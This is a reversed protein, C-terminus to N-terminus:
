RRVSSSTLTPQCRTRLSPRDIDVQKATVVISAIQADNSAMLTAM